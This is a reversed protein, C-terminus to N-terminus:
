RKKKEKWRKDHGNGKIRTEHKEKRNKYQRLCDNNKNWDIEGEIMM